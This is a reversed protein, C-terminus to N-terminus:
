DEFVRWEEEISNTNLLTIMVWAFFGSCLLFGVVHM